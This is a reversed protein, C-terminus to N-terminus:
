LKTWAWGASRPPFPAASFWGAGATAKFTAADVAIETPAGRTATPALTDTESENVVYVFRTNQTGLSTEGLQSLTRWTKLGFEDVHELSRQTLDGTATGVPYPHTPM